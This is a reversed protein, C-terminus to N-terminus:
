KNLRGENNETLGDLIQKWRGLIKGESFRERVAVAESSLTKRLTEDEMLRKMAKALERTDQPPVLIGNTGDQIIDRPGTDCDFAVCACGAAMAELVVNPFGEYRSSLVFLDAREYWDGVNGTQGPMKVRDKLGLTEILHQLKECEDNERDKGSQGGLIILKWDPHEPSIESFARILLDFGKQRSLSGVALVLKQDQALFDGPDVAPIGSPLPWRVSNPIVAIRKARTKKKLWEAIGRTQAVHIDAFRYLAKRLLAWQRPMKKHGPFNRESVAVRAPLGKCALISMVACETMMGIVVDPNEKKIVSRLTKIRRINALIKGAGRSQGALELCIRGVKEDLTYFDQEKGCITVVTVSFGQNSLFGSLAAAVRESGGSTLSHILILIKKSDSM